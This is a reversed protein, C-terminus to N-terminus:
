DGELLIEHGGPIPEHFFGGDVWTPVSEVLEDCSSITAGGYWQTNDYLTARRYGDADERIILALLDGTAVSVDDLTELADPNDTVVGGLVLDRMASDPTSKIATCQITVIVNAVRFQRGDELDALALTTTPEFVAPPDTAPRAAPQRGWMQVPVWVHDYVFRTLSSRDSLITVRTPTDADVALVGVPLAGVPGDSSRWGSYLLTTGDPSWTVSYPYWSERGNPGDTQPPAIVTENGDAVNVLVVEHREASSPLRRQYAIREGTPSWVPGVGHNATGLHTLLRDNTGDADVLRLEDMANEGGQYALTSGDPSWTLNQAEISGLSRSEGTSVSYITISTSATEASRDPGIDGAIALEDTGPRWELDTPRLEPLRRIAGTLTDAVWVEGNGVFSVWRGDPAWAVCPHLDFGPLAQFGDLAIVTPAGTVGGRGVPVIVLETRRSATDSSDALRGFSLRTGDPSWTPCAEDGADSGPVELRRADEGPRVVYIDGDVDFAVLGNPQPGGPFASVENQSVQDRSAVVAFAAVSAAALALGAAIWRRRDGSPARPADGPELTLVTPEDLSVVRSAAVIAEVRDGLAAIFRPDPEHRRHIARLDLDDTM